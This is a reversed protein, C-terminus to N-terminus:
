KKTSYAVVLLSAVIKVEIRDRIRLRPGSSTTVSDSGSGVTMGSKTDSVLVTELLM